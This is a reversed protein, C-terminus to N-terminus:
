LLDVLLALLWLGCWPGLSSAFASRCRSRLIHLGVCPPCGFAEDRWVVVVFPHTPVVVLLALSPSTFGVGRHRIVRLCHSGFRETDFSVSACLEGGSHGVVCRRPICRSSSSPVRCGVRCGVHPLEFILYLSSPPHVGLYPQGTQQPCGLVL